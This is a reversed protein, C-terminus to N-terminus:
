FTRQLNVSASGIDLCGDSVQIVRSFLLLLGTQVISPLYSKPEPSVLMVLSPYKDRARGEFPHQSYFAMSNLAHLHCHPLLPTCPLLRRLSAFEDASACPLAVNKSASSTAACFNIFWSMESYAPICDREKYRVVRKAIFFSM